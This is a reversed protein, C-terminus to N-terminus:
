KKHKLQTPDATASVGLSALDSLSGGFIMTGTHSTRIWPCLFIKLGIKGAWQCFMYDESLYRKTEPDIITDFYMMIERSGDFMETRVHDPRYLLEPYAERFKDFTNRRIMMFGTGSELVEVPEDLRFNGTNHKPNFVFDGLFNELNNPNEDARGKDVAIKIKEWSICKKPYPACLVDYPSEDSQLALMALVDKADFGIDADLFIMHQCDSRMFEDACYARARPILSENFLFYTRLQIGNATCLSALDMVSKTFTGTAMGGYMPTCLMLSRKRLEAMEIKIEM